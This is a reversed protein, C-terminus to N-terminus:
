SINYVLFPDDCHEDEKVSKPLVKNINNILRSEKVDRELKVDQIVVKKVPALKENLAKKAKQLDVKASSKTRMSSKDSKIVKQTDATEKVFEKKAKVFDEKTMNSVRSDEVIGIFEGESNFVFLESINDINESVFVKQGRYKPVFSSIFRLGNFHIGDKQVERSHYGGAYILFSEYSIKQIDQTCSNWKEVPSPGVRRKKDIEWLCVAEQLRADFDDWSLLEDSDTQTMVSNGYKDKAKRNKKATQQEIKQRHGVNHGIFGVLMTMYSHQITKFAREIGGKEDGSYAIASDYKIHLNDLLNQFQKSLYDRGNDGKITKPMGLEDIARWTLRIIALANSKVALTAIVRGSFVDKIALIDPRMQKGEHFIIVDAPTSDIEWCENKYTFQEKRDGMAPQNYSKNFDEGMTALTWEVVRTEYYNDLFRKVVGYDCLNKVEGSKWAIFDFGNVREEQHHLEEWVQKYNIEGAGFARFCSIIFRQQHEKLVRTSGKKNGRKDILARAGQKKYERNWDYHMKQTYHINFENQVYEVFEKVSGREERKFDGWTSMVKLKIDLKAKQKKDLTLEIERKPEKKVHVIQSKIETYQYAPRGRGKKVLEFKYKVSEFEVFEAKKEAAQKTKARIHRLTFGTIDALEAGYM